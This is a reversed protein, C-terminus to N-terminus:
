WTERSSGVPVAAAEVDCVLQAGLVLLDWPDAAGGCPDWWGRLPAGDVGCRVADLLVGLERRRTAPDAAWRATVARLEPGAAATVELRRPERGGRGGRGGRDARVDAALDALDAGSLGSSGRAASLLRRADGDLLVTLERVMGAADDPAHVLRLVANPSDLGARLTGRRRVGPDAEGKVAALLSSADVARSGDQRLVVVLSDAFGLVLEAVAYRAPSLSRRGEPWLAACEQPGVRARAAAVARLGARDLLETGRRVQDSLVADPTFVVVAHRAIAERAGAGFVRVWDRPERSM